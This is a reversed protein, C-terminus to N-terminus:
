CMVPSCSYLGQQCGSVWFFLTLAVSAPTVAQMALMYAKDAARWGGGCCCAGCPQVADREDAGGGTGSDSSSVASVHVQPRGAAAAKHRRCCPPPVAPAGGAAAPPPEAHTHTGLQGRWALLTLATGLVGTIGYLVYAARRKSQDNLHQCLMHMHRATVACNGCVSGGGCAQLCGVGM